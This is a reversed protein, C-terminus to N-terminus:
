KDGRLKVRRGIKEAVEEVFRFSGTLQGRKLAERVMNQEGDPGAGNNKM